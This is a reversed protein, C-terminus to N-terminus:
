ARELMILGQHLKEERSLCQWTAQDDACEDLFTSLDFVHPNFAMMWAKFVEMSRTLPALDRYLSFAMLILYDNVEEEISNITENPDRDAHKFFNAAKGFGKWLENETEPRISAMVQKWGPTDAQKSLDRVIRCAAAIVTHVAIPDDNRFLMKIAADIQRQAAEIKSVQIEAM